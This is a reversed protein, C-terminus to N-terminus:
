IAATLHKYSNSTPYCSVTLAKLPPGLEEVLEDFIEAEDDSDDKTDESTKGKGKCGTDLEASKGRRVNAGAHAGGRLGNLHQALRQLYGVADDYAKARMWSARGRSALEAQAESLARQLGTFAAEHRSATQQMRQKHVGANESSDEAGEQLFAHTLLALLNAFGGLTQRTRDRLGRVATQPWLLLCVINSVCAGIGIICAVQFLTKPGGEKM